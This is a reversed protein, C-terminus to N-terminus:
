LCTLYLVCTLHSRLSVSAAVDLVRWSGRVHFKILHALLLGSQVTDYYDGRAESHHKPLYDCDRCTLLPASTTWFSACVYGTLDKGKAEFRPKHMGVLTKSAHWSSQFSIIVKQSTPDASPCTAPSTSPLARWKSVHHVLKWKGTAPHQAPGTQVWSQYLVLAWDLYEDFFNIPLSCWPNSRSLFTTSIQLPPRALKDFICSSVQARSATSCPVLVM